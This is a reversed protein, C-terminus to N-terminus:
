DKYTTKISESIANSFNGMLEILRTNLNTSRQMKILFIKYHEQNIASYLIDNMSRKFLRAAKLMSTYEKYEFDYSKFLYSHKPVFLSLNMFIENASKDQQFLIKISEETFKFKEPIEVLGDKGISELVSNMYLTQEKICYALKKDIRAVESIVTIFGYHVKVKEQFLFLKRSETTNDRSIKYSIYGLILLSLFSIIPNLIGGFYDGFNGWKSIDKSIVTESFSDYFKYIPITIIIIVLIIFLIVLIPKIIRKM